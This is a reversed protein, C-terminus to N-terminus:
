SGTRKLFEIGKLFSGTVSGCLENDEADLKHIRIPLVRGAVNGDPLKVKLVFQGGSAQKVFAKFEHEREFSNPDCYTRSIIPNFVVCKLKEKHSDGADPTELLGDRPNIDFYVSIEEKFTSEFGTKLDKVFECVERECKNEKKRYSIFIEYERGPLLSRM